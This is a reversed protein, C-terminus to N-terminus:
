KDGNVGWYGVASSSYGMLDRGSEGEKWRCITIVKIDINTALIDVDTTIWCGPNLQIYENKELINGKVIGKKDIEVM